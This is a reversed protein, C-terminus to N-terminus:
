KVDSICAVNLIIQLAVGSHIARVRESESKRARESGRAREIERSRERERARKEQKRAKMLINRAKM